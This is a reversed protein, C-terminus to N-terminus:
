LVPVSQKERNLGEFLFSINLVNAATVFHIYELCSTLVILIGTEFNMNSTKNQLAIFRDSM